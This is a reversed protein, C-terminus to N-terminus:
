LSNHATSINLFTKFSALLEQNAQRDEEKIRALIEEKNAAM